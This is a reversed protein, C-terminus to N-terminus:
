PQEGTGGSGGCCPALRKVGLQTDRDNPDSCQDEQSKESFDDTLKEESLKPESNKNPKPNKEEM